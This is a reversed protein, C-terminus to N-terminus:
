DSVVHISSGLYKKKVEAVDDARFTELDAAIEGELRDLHAADTRLERFAVSEVPVGLAEETLTRFHDADTLEGRWLNDRFFLWGDTGPPDARRSLTTEFTPPDLTLGEREPNLRFRVAFVYRASGPGSTGDDTMAPDITSADSFNAPSQTTVRRRHRDRRRPGDRDPGSAVTRRWSTTRPPSRRRRGEFRRDSGFKEFGPLDTMVVYAEETTGTTPYRGTGMGTNGTRTDAIPQVGHSSRLQDVTRIVEDL